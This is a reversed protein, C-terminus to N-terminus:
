KENVAFIMHWFDFKKLMYKEKVRLGSGDIFDDLKLDNRWGVMKCLPNMLVECAALYKNECQFHNVVVVEGGPKCVRRIEKMVKYPDPVVSVVHSTFVKDFSDDDFGSLDQADMERIEIHSLGHRMIKARAQDLMEVSLDIGVVSCDSPYIPLSLGTGVGVDLVRDGPEFNMSTIAHEIRPHFIWKFLRDYVDSYAAYIKKVSESQLQGREAQVVERDTLM